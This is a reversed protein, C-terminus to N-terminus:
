LKGQIIRKIALRLARDMLYFISKVKSVHNSQIKYLELQHSIVTSLKGFEDSAGGVRMNSIIADTVHMSPKFRIARLILDYDAAIKYDCNYGNCKDLLKKSIVTSPHPFPNNKLRGDYSSDTLKLRAIETKNYGVLRTAGILVYNDPRGATELYELLVRISGDELYDDSNLYLIYRGRSLSLGKNMAYYIGGDPETILVDIIDRNKSLIDLTGDASAGDVV